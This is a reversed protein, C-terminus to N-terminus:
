RGYTAFMEASAIVKGTMAKELERRSAGPALTLKEKLAYLRFFYRHPKGPPPSPGGYGIRGFDNKGQASGDTLTRSQQIGQALGKTSAPLNWIVWHVWTGVPADPDDCILALSQTGDPASVWSLAPSVDRGDATFDRPISGGPKFSASTISFPM